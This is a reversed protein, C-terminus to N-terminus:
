LKHNYLKLQELFHEKVSDQENKPNLLLKFVYSVRWTDIDPPIVSNEISHVIEGEFLVFRMHRCDSRLAVEGDNNFFVTGLGYERAMFNSETAYLMFSILWPYGKAGNTFNCPYYANEKSYLIPIAFPLGKETNFDEHKGKEMNEKSSRELRNTAVSSACANQDCLDWPLTSIDVNLKYALMGLFKYFEKIAEPPNKCLEWKEMNNMSRAAEEGKDRSEPTAYSSRSFKTNRSYERFREGEADSYFDDFIYIEKKNIEYRKLAAKRLREEVSASPQAEFHFLLLSTSPSKYRESMLRISNKEIRVKPEEADSSIPPNSINVMFAMALPNKSVNGNSLWTGRSM